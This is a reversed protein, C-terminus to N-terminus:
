DYAVVFFYMSEYFLIGLSYMDSQPTNSTEGRLLEPAMWLPSGISGIARYQGLGFDSIKLHFRRDVLCNSAKLDGHVIPSSFSHLYTLGRSIDQLMPLLMDSSLAFTDNSLIDRLSGHEM